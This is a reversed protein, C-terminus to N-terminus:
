YMRVEVISGNIKTKYAATNNNGDIEKQYMMGDEINAQNSPVPDQKNFKLSNGVTKNTIVTTSNPTFVSAAQGIFGAGWVFKVNNTGSPPAVSYTLTINTSDVAIEYVGFADPIIPNAFYVEPPDNLGHPIDFQKTTANGTFTAIGGAPFGGFGGEFDPMDIYELDNGASNVSLIQEANGMALNVFKTGNNVLLGGASAGTAIISNNVVDIVKNLLTQVHALFVFTDNGTLAPLTIDRSASLTSSRIRYAFGSGAAHWIRLNNDGFRTPNKINWDYSVDTALLGTIIRIIENWQDAAVLDTSSLGPNTKQLYGL